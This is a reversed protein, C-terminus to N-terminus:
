RRPAVANTALEAQGWRDALWVWPYALTRLVARRRKPPCDAPAVPPHASAPPWIQLPRTCHNGCPLEGTAAAVTRCAQVDCFRSRM